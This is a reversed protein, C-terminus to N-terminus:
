ACRHLGCDLCAAADRFSAGRPRACRTAPSSAEASQPAGEEAVLVWGAAPPPRAAAARRRVRASRRGAHAAARRDPGPDPGQRDATQSSRSAFAEASPTRIAVGSSLPEIGAHELVLEVPGLPRERVIRQAAFGDGQNSGRRAQEARHPSLGLRSTVGHAIGNIAAPPPVGLQEQKGRAAPM